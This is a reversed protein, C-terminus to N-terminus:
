LKEGRDYALAQAATRVFVGAPVVFGVTGRMTIKREPVKRKRRQRTWWPTPSILVVFGTDPDDEPFSWEYRWGAKVAAAADTPSDSPHCTALTAMYRALKRAFEAQAPDLPRTM